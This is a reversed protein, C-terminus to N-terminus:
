LFALPRQHTIEDLAHLTKRHKVPLPSLISANLSERIMTRATM